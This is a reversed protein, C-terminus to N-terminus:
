EVDGMYSDYQEQTIEGNALKEDFVEKVRARYLKPVPKTFPDATGYVTQVKYEVRMVYFEVM